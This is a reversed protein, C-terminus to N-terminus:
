FSLPDFNQFHGNLAIRQKTREVERMVPLTNELHRILFDQRESESDITLLKYESDQSLGIKHGILFSFPQNYTAQYPLPMDLLHYFEETLKLLTAHVSFNTELPLFEVEGGAYLKGTIPNQFDTIRFVRIGKTRIDMRGDEYRKNLAVVQLETGYGHLRNKLFSPIGFTKNEAICENVLQRYRPEFIHLNLNEFPFVVNPLPFLPLFSM